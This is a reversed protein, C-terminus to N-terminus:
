YSALSIFNEWEFLISQNHLLIGLPCVFIICVRVGAPSLHLTTIPATRNWFGAPHVVTCNQHYGSPTLTLSWLNFPRNKWLTARAELALKVKSTELNGARRVLQSYVLSKKYGWNQCNALIVWLVWLLAISKIGIKNYLICMPHTRPPLMSKGHEPRTSDSYQIM